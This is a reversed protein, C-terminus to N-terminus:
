GSCCAVQKGADPRSVYICQHGGNTLTVLLRIAAEERYTTTAVTSSTTALSGLSLCGDVVPDGAAVPPPIVSCAPRAPTVCPLVPCTCRPPVYVALYLSSTRVRGPVALLYTCPWTCRPPVYVALYLSSTRVRGPVALLYTCPWTCRPPVYVALVSM